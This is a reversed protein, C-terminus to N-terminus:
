NEISAIKDYQGELLRYDKNLITIKDQLGEEKIRNQAFNYQADSITTTTIKCGYNKAAHIAFSGWGAWNRSCTM